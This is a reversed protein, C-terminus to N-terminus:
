RDFAPKGDPDAVTVTESRVLEPVSQVAAVSSSWKCIVTLMGNVATRQDGAVSTVLLLVLIVAV